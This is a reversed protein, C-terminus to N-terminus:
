EEDANYEMIRKITTHKNMEATNIKVINKPWPRITHLLEIILKPDHLLQNRMALADTDNGTEIIMVIRGQISTLSDGSAWKMMAGASFPFRKERAM